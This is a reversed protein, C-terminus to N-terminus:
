KRCNNYSIDVRKSLANERFILNVSEWCFRGLISKAPLGASDVMGDTWVDLLIRFARGLDM